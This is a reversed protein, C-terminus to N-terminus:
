PTEGIDLTQRLNLPLYILTLVGAAISEVKYQESLVDGVRAAINQEAHQLFVTEEGADVYRGLVRFPMAPPQQEEVLAQPKMPKVTASAPTARPSHGVTGFANPSDEDTSRPRITLVDVSTSAGTAATLGTSSSPAGRETPSHNRQVPAVLDDAAEPALVAALLTAALGLGLALRFTKM